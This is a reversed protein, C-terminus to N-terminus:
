VGIDSPLSYCRCRYHKKRSSQAITKSEIRKWQVSCPLFCGIGIDYRSVSNNKPAVKMLVSHM